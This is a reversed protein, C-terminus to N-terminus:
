LFSNWQLKKFELNCISNSNKGFKDTPDFNDPVKYGKSPDAPDVPTLEVGNYTPVYGEVYPITVKSFDGPKTPDNPNNPYKIKEPANTPKKGEPYEPTFSGIKKIFFKQWKQLLLEM